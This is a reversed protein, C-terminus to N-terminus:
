IREDRAFAVNLNYTSAAPTSYVVKTLLVPSLVRNRFTVCERTSDQIRLVTMSQKFGGTQQLVLSDVADLPPTQRM